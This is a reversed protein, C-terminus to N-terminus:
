HYMIGRDQISDFNCKWVWKDKGYNLTGYTHTSNELFMCLSHKGRNLYPALHPFIFHLIGELLRSDTLFICVLGCCHSVAMTRPSVHAFPFSFCTKRPEEKSGGSDPKRVKRQGLLSGRTLKLFKKNIKPQAPDENCRPSTELQPSCPSSEATTEPKEHCHSRRSCLM